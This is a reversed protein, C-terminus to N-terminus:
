IRRLGSLVREMFEISPRDGVMSTASHVLVLGLGAVDGVLVRVVGLPLRLHAAVEAVSRTDLCLGCISRHEPVRVRDLMRGRESTSVLAELALDYDPKTRGKTRFYPRVLGSTESPGEPEVNAQRPLPSPVLDQSPPGGGLSSPGGDLSREAFATFAASEDPESLGGGGMGYLESGPGSMLRQRYDNVDFDAPGQAGEELSRLWEGTDLTQDGGPRRPRWDRDDRDHYAKDNDSESPWRGALRDRDLRRDGRWHGSDM